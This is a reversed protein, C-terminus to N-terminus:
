LVPPGGPPAPSPRPPACRGSLRARRSSAPLKTGIQGGPFPAAPREGCSPGTANGPSNLIGRGTTKGGPSRRWRRGLFSRAPPEPGTEAPTAEPPAPACNPAPPPAPQTGLPPPRGSVSLPSPDTPRASSTEAVAAAAALPSVSAAPASPESVAFSSTRSDSCVAKAKDEDERRGPTGDDGSTHM